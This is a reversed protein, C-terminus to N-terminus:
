GTCCLLCFGSSNTPGCSWDFNVFVMLETFCDAELTPLPMKSPAFFITAVADFNFIGGISSFMEPAPFCIVCAPLLIADPNALLACANDM